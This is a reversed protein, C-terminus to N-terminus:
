PQRRRNPFATRVGNGLLGDPSYVLYGGSYGAEGNMFNTPSQQVLNAKSAVSIANASTRAPTTNHELNLLMVLLWAASMGAVHWRLSLLFARLVSVARASRDTRSLKSVGSADLRTLAKRRIADLRPQVSRHRELLIQRPTKM